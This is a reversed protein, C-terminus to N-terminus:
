TPCRHLCRLSRCGRRRRRRRRPAGRRPPPTTRRPAIPSRPSRPSRRGGPRSRRAPRRRRSRTRRAPWAGYRGGSQPGLQLAREDARVGGAHARRHLALHDPRHHQQAGAASAAPDCRRAAPRRPARHDVQEVRPDRRTTCSCPESPQERRDRAAPGSRGPASPRPRPRPRRRSGAPPPPRRRAAAPRRDLQALLLTQREDVAGVPHEPMSTSASASRPRSNVTASMVAAILTSASSPVSWAKARRGARSEARVGTLRDARRVDGAQEGARLRRRGGRRRRGRAPRTSAASSAAPARRPAPCGRRRRPPRRARAPRPRDVVRHHEGVARTADFPLKWPAGTPTRRRSGRWRSRRGRRRDGLAASSRSSSLARECPSGGNRASSGPTSEPSIIAWYVGGASTASICAARPARWRRSADRRRRHLLVVHRHAPGRGALQSPRQVVQALDEGDLEDGGPPREVQASREGRRDARARRQARQALPDGPGPGSRKRAGSRAAASSRRRSPVMSSATSDAMPGSAQGAFATGTMAVRDVRAGRHSTGLSAWRGGRVECGRPGRGRRRHSTGAAAM